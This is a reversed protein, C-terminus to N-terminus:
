HETDTWTPHKGRIINVLDEITLTQHVVQHRHLAEVLMQQTIDTAEQEKKTRGRTAIVSVEEGKMVSAVIDDITAYSEDTEDYLRRNDQYKKFMRKKVTDESM